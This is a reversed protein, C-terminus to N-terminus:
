LDIDKTLLKVLSQKQADDSLDFFDNLAAEVIRVEPQKYKKAVKTIQKIVEPDLKFSKLKKISM